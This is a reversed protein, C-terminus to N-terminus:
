RVIVTRFALLIENSMGTFIIEFIVSLVVWCNQWANKRLHVFIVLNRVRSLNATAIKPANQDSPPQVIRRPQPPGSGPARLLGPAGLKTAVAQGPSRAPPTVATKPQVIRPNQSRLMDASSSRPQFPGPGRALPGPGRVLPGPGRFLPGPPRATGPQSVLKVSPSSPTVVQQGSGTNQGAIRMQEVMAKYQAKSVVIKKTPKKGVPAAVKPQSSISGGFPVAATHPTAAASDGSGPLLADLTKLSTDSDLKAQIQEASLGLLIFM